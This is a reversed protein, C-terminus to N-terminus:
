AFLRATMEEKWYELQEKYLQHLAAADRQALADILRDHADASAVYSERQRTKKMLFFAFLPVVLRELMDSLYENHSLRWIKRHFALDHEYFLQLDLREAGLKMEATLLRLQALADPTVHEKAWEIALAELEIRLRFIQAIEEETLKTVTTGKFPAKRVFGSHELEILAERILPTGVGLQRALSTEVVTDGPQLQGNLIASKIAEVVQDKRSTPKLMPLASTKM